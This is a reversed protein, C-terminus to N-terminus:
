YVSINVATGSSSVNEVTSVGSAHLPNQLPSLNLHHSVYLCKCFNMERTGFQKQKQCKLLTSSTTDKAQLSCLNICSINLSSFSIHFNSFNFAFSKISNHKLVYRLLIPQVKHETQSNTKETNNVTSCM